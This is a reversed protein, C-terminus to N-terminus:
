RPLAHAAAANFSRERLYSALTADWLAAYEAYGAPDLDVINDWEPPSDTVTKAQRAKVFAPKPGHFHIIQADASPGWYPKWNLSRDMPQYRDTYYLRMVEQDLGAFLNQLTFDVLKTYDRRLAATNLVLVGSNMDTAPDAASQSTAAFLAPRDAGFLDPQKLFVVDCDTYLAYPETRELLPIDFRLFAGSAIDLYGQNGDAHRALADYFTIRHFLVTVGAHRLETTFPGDEGDYIFHPKLTTNRKASHVAVRIM